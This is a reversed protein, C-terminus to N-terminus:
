NLERMGWNTNLSGVSQFNVNHALSIDQTTEREPEYIILSLVLDDIENQNFAIDATAITSIEFEIYGKKLYNSPVFCGNFLPNTNQFSIDSTGGEGVTILIPSGNYGRETDYHFENVAGVARITRHISSNTLGPIRAYVLVLKSNEALLPFQKDTLDFRYIKSNNYTSYTNVIYATTQDAIQEKKIANTSSNGNVLRNSENRGYLVLKYVSKFKHYIM